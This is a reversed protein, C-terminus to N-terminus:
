DNDLEEVAADFASQVTNFPGSMPQEEQYWYWGTAAPIPPNEWGIWFEHGAPTHHYGETPPPPAATQPDRFPNAPQNM